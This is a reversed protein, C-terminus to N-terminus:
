LASWTTNTTSDTVGDGDEDVDLRVNVTDIATLTVSSNNAGTAKAQGVFPNGSGNGQFTTNTVITASGGMSPSSVTAAVNFTYAGTGANDTSDIQFATITATVGASTYQVSAGSLRSTTVVGDTSSESYTAAGNAIDTLGNEQAQLNNMQMTFQLTYPFTTIDGTVVLGTLAISGNLISGAENCNAFSISMTDGSTITGSNDVDDLSFSFNGGNTCAINNSSIVAGTVGSFQGTAILPQATRLATALVGGVDFGSGTQTVAGTLVGGGSSAGNLGVANDYSAGAVQPANASTITVPASAAAATGGGNGGGSGGGCGALITASFSIVGVLKWLSINSM